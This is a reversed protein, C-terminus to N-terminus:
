AAVPKKYAAVAAALAAVGVEVVNKDDDADILSTASVAPRLQHEQEGLNSSSSATASAPGVSTYMGDLGTM